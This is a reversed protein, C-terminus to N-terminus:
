WNPDDPNTSTPVSAAPQRRLEEELADLRMKAKQVEAKLRAGEAVLEQSAKVGQSLNQLEQSVVQSGQILTRTAQKQRNIEAVLEENVPSAARAADPMRLPGRFARAGENPHLNWKGTSEVRYLTHAEHMVLRDNPDIYRGLPYAKINEAYRVREMSESPLTTGPVSM